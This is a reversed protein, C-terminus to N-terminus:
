DGFLARKREFAGVKERPAFRWVIQALRHQGSNGPDYTLARSSGAAEWTTGAAVEPRSWGSVWIVARIARRVRGAKVRTSSSTTIPIMASSIEIKSGAS